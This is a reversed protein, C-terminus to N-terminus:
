TPPGFLARRLEECLESREELLAKAQGRGRGLKEEGFAFYAGSRKVVGRAVALDLLCGV